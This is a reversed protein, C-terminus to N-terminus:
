KDMMVAWKVNEECPPQTYSGEYYVWEGIDDIDDFADDLDVERLEDFSKIVDEIFENEDDGKEFCVSVAFVDYPDERLEHFVQLELDCIEGDISHEGPAHIDFYKALYTKNTGDDPKTQM